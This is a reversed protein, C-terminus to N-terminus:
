GRTGSLVERRNQAMAARGEDSMLAKDWVQRESLEPNERKIRECLREFAIHGRSRSPPDAGYPTDGWPPRQNPDLGGAPSGLAQKTAPEMRPERHRRAYLQPDARAVQGVATALDSAEGADMLDRAKRLIEANASQSVPTEEHSKFLLIHAGEGTADDYNAGQHCVAVSTIKLKRLKTPM